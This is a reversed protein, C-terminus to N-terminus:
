KVLQRVQEVDISHSGVSTIPSPKSMVILAGSVIGVGSLTMAASAGGEGAKEVAADRIFESLKKSCARAARSVLGFEESPFAVSVVARRVRVPPRAEAGEFDWNDPNELEHEKAM